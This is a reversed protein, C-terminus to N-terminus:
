EITVLFYNKKGKQVLIYKEAILDDTSVVKDVTVKTKNIALGNGQIMRRAEGNSTFVQTKQAAFDLEDADSKGQWDLSFSVDKQAGDALLILQHDGNALALEVKDASKVLQGNLYVQPNELGNVTLTGQTFRKTAVPLQYALWGEGEAKATAAQWSFTQNFLKVKDGRQVQSLKAVLNARLADAQASKSLATASVQTVPGIRQIYKADIDVGFAMGSVAMALSTFVLSFAKMVRGKQKYFGAQILDIKIPWNIIKLPNNIM